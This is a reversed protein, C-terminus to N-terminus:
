DDVFMYPQTKQNPNIPVKKIIDNTAIDYIVM